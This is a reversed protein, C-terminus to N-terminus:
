PSFGRFMSKLFELDISFEMPFEMGSIGKSVVFRTFNEPIAFSKEAFFLRRGRCPTSFGDRELVEAEVLFVNGHCFLFMSFEVPLSCSGLSIRCFICQNTEKHKKINRM